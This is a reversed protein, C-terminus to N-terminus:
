RILMKATDRRRFSHQFMCLMEQLFKVLNVWRLYIGVIPQSQQKSDMAQDADDPIIAKVLNYYLMIGKATLFLKSCPSKRSLALCRNFFHSSLKIDSGSRLLCRTHSLIISSIRSSDLVSYSSSTALFLPLNQMLTKSIRRRSPPGFSPHPIDQGCPILAVAFYRETHMRLSVESVHREHQM